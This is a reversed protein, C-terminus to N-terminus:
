KQSAPKPALQESLAVPVYIVVPVELQQQTSNTTQVVIKGQRTTSPIRDLKAELQYMKGVKAISVALEPITSTVGEIRFDKSPDSAQVMLTRTTFPEFKMQDPNTVSWFLQDPEIVLEGLIRGLIQLIAIPEEREPTYVGVFEAIRGIAGNEPGIELSIDLTNADTRKIDAKIWPKSPEVRPVNINKGDNRTLRVSANTGKGDRLNAFFTLPTFEYLPVFDATLELSLQPVKPDNSTVTINKNLKTRAAPMNLTFELDASQGPELHNPQITAVTCGCSVQPEGFILPANGENSLKFKGSVSESGIV